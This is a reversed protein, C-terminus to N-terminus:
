LRNRGLGPGPKFGPRGYVHSGRPQPGPLADVNVSGTMGALTMLYADTVWLRSLVWHESYKGSPAPVEVGEVNGDPTVGIAGGFNPAIQGSPAYDGIHAVAQTVKRTAAVPRSAPTTDNFLRGPWTTKNSAPPRRRPARLHHRCDQSTSIQLFLPQRVEGSDLYVKMKQAAVGVGAFGESIASTFTQWAAKMGAIVLAWGIQPWRTCQDRHYSAELALRRPSRWPTNSGTFPRWVAIIGLVVGEQDSGLENEGRRM